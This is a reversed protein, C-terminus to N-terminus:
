VFLGISENNTNPHEFSSVLYMKGLGKTVNEDAKTKM